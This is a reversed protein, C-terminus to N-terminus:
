VSSEENVEHISGLFRATSSLILWTPHMIWLHWHLRKNSQNTNMSISQPSTWFSSLTSTPQLSYFIPLKQCATYASYTPASSTNFFTLRSLLFIIYTASPMPLHEPQHKLSYQIKTNKTLQKVDSDKGSSFNLGDMCRGERKEVMWLNM